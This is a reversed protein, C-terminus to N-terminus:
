VVETRVCDPCKWLRPADFVPSKVTIFDCKRAEDAADGPDNGCKKALTKCFDCQVVLASEHYFNHSSVLKITPHNIIAM